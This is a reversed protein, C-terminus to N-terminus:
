AVLNLVLFFTLKLGKKVPAEGRIKSGLSLHM